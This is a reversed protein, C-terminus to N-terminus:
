PGVWAMVMMLGILVAAVLMTVASVITNMGGRVSYQNDDTSDYM